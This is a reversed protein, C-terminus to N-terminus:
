SVAAAPSNSPLRSATDPVATPMTQLSSRPESSQAPTHHVSSSTNAAEKTQQQHMAVGAAAAQATEAPQQHQDQQLPAEQGQRPKAKDIAQQSLETDVHFAELFPKYYDQHSLMCGFFTRFQVAM